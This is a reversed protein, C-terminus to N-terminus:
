LLYVIYMMFAYLLKFYIKLYCVDNIQLSLSSTNLEAYLATRKREIRWLQAQLLMARASALSLSFVCQLEFLHIELYRCEPRKSAVITRVIMFERTNECGIERARWLTACKPCQPEYTSVYLQVRCRMFEFIDNTMHFDLCIFKRGINTNKEVNIGFIINLKGFISFNIEVRMHISRVHCRM